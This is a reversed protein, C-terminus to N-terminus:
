EKSHPHQFCRETIEETWGEGCFFFLFLHWAVSLLSFFVSLGRFEEDEGGPDMIGLNLLSIERRLNWRLYMGFDFTM